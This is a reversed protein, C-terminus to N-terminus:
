KKTNNVIAVVARIQEAIFRSFVIILFGYIPMLFISAIGASVFPLDLSRGLSDADSGLFITTVLAFGFGVIAVWTGIWEGLTQIFHSIVPTAPFESDDVVSQLVKDKRDWWLQFSIWGAFAIILWIFIFAFVFKAPADFIDGDIALYLVFLPFLLNIVAIAAYLWNFPQSYLKGKDIFSLYPAIFTFFKNDM